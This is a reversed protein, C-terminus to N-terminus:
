FHLLYIGLYRFHTGGRLQLGQPHWKGPQVFGADGMVEREVAAMVLRWSCEDFENAFSGEAPAGPV